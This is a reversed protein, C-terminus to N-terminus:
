GPIAGLIQVDERHKQPLDYDSHMGLQATRSVCRVESGAITGRGTLAGSQLPWPDNYLQVLEGADDFDVVHVDVERGDGHVDVFASDYMVGDIEIPQNESWELKRVFRASRMSDAYSSLDALQVLLDLDKHTRTAGGLLADVGWGGMVWCRVGRTDLLEYLRVAQEATM